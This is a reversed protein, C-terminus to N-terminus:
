GPQRHAGKRGSLDENISIFLPQYTCSGIIHHLNMSRPAAFDNAIFRTIYDADAIISLLFVPAKQQGATAGTSERYMKM